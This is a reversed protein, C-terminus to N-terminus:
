ISRIAVGEIWVWVDGTGLGVAADPVEIIRGIAQAATANSTFTNGDTLYVTTGLNDRSINGAITVPLLFKGKVAVECRVEGVTATAVGSQMAIGLFTNGAGTGNEIGGDSGEQVASGQWITTSAKIPVGTVVLTSPDHPRPFPASLNAM